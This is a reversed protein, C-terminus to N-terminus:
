FGGFRENKVNKEFDKIRLFHFRERSASRVEPTLIIKHLGSQNVSKIAGKYNQSFSVLSTFLIILLSYKRM